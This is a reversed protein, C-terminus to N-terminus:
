PPDATAMADTAGLQAHALWREDGPEGVSRYVTVSLPRLLDRLAGALSLDLRERDRFGTMQALHDILAPM